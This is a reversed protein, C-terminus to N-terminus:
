EKATPIYGGSRSSTTPISPSYRTRESTIGVRPGRTRFLMRKNYDRMQYDIERYFDVLDYFDFLKTLGIVQCTLEDSIANELLPVLSDDLYRIEAACRAFTAYFDDFTKNAMKLTRLENIARNRKNKNEYIKELTTM